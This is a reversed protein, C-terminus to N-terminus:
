EKVFNMAMTFNIYIGKSTNPCVSYPSNLEFCKKADQLITEDDLEDTAREENKAQPKM